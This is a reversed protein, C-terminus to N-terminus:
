CRPNFSVYAWILSVRAEFDPVTFTLVGIIAMPLCTYLLYPRFKGWRSKTRDALMGLSDFVADVVPQLQLAAVSLRDPRFVHTYFIPLFDSISKWYLCSASIASDM